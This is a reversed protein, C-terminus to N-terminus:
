AGVGPEFGRLRALREAGFLAILVGALVFPAYSWGTSIGLTPLVHTRTQLALQGGYVAMGLGFVVVAVLGLAEIALRPRGTLRERFFVLGIHFDERVGAAAALLIYWNMLFISLRESWSPTDNLVYRGFIQWAIIATMLVLGVAALGLSLASVAGLLRTLPGAGEAAAAVRPPGDLDAGAGDRIM